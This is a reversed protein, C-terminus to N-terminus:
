GEHVHQLSAEIGGEHAVADDEDAGGDLAHVLM